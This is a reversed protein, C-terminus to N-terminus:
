KENIYCNKCFDHLKHEEISERFNKFKSNNWIKKFNHEHINGFNIIKSNAIMCCPVVFGNTDIFPKQWPYNCKNKKSFFNEKIINFRFNKSAYKKEFNELIDIINGSGETNVQQSSNNKELKENGYGTLKVQFDIGDFGLFKSLKIVEEIELYNLKQVLMMVKSKIKKNNQSNIESFNKLNEIIQNFNSGVRIKEFINSSAGDISVFMTELNNLNILKKINIKNLLSGNTVFDVKIHYNEAIKIMKVFNTNVFPEGLGQLKILMLQKNQKIIKEFTDLNMNKKIYGPQSVECMTCRFNCGTTPEIDMKIPLYKIFKLNFKQNLVYCVLNFLKYVIFNIYFM